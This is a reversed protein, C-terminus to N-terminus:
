GDVHSPDNTGPCGYGDPGLLMFRWSSVPILTQRWGAPPVDEKSRHTGHAFGSKSNVLDLGFDLLDGLDQLALLRILRDGVQPLLGEREMAYSRSTRGDLCGRDPVRRRCAYTM